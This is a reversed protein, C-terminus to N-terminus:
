TYKNCSFGFIQIVKGFSIKKFAIYIAVFTYKISGKNIPFYIFIQYCVLNHKEIGGKVSHEKLAM